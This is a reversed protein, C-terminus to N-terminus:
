WKWYQGFAKEAADSIIRFRSAGGAPLSVATPSEMLATVARVCEQLADLSYGGELVFCIKGACAEEAALILSAAVSAYGASTVRLGGLPDLFHGDFGASVLILQPKFQFLVPRIISAYVPAFVDDGTGSPLPLNLTYGKGAGVGIETFAGTGPYFPYQHTSVFLVHPDDYFRVQTGNGHHVDFDVVAVRELKHKKRAYAAALAVNNFLCFGMARDPEAHHGPPRVFAFARLLRGSCIADVCELSGGAASLAARYSGASVVTDADLHSPARRCAQEVREILAPHHVLELEDRLAPRPVIRRWRSSLGSNDLADKIATLRQPTEPHHSGPDHSLFIDDILYACTSQDM